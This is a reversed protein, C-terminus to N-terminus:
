QLLFNQLAGPIMSESSASEKAHSSHENEEEGSALGSSAFGARWEHKCTHTHNVRAGLAFFTWSGMAVVVAVKTIIKKM